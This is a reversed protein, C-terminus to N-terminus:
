VVMIMSMPDIFTLVLWAFSNNIFNILLVKNKFVDTWKETLSEEDEMSEKEDEMEELSLDKPYIIKKVIETAEEIRGKKVLWAPSENGLSFYDM